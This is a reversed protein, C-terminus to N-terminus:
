AFSKPRKLSSRSGCVPSGSPLKGCAYVCTPTIRAANSKALASPFSGIYRCGHPRPRPRARPCLALAHGVTSYGVAKEGACERISPGTALHFANLPSPPRSWGGVFDIAHDPPRSWRPVCTKRLQSPESWGCLAFTAHIPHDLGGRFANCKTPPTTRGMAHRMPNREPTTAVTSTRVQQTGSTTRVM